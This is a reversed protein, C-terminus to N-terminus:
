WAPRISGFRELFHLLVPVSVNYPLNAVLATPAPGPLSEIACARRGAVLDLRDVHDPAHEAVTAPLQEALM